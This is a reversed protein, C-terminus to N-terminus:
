DPPTGGPRDTATDDLPTSSVFAVTLMPLDDRPLVATLVRGDDLEVALGLVFPDTDLLLGSREVGDVLVAHGSQVSREDVLTPWPHDTLDPLAHEDRYRNVLVYQV